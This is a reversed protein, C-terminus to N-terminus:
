TCGSEPAALAAVGSEVARVSLSRVVVFMCFLLVLLLVFLLVFLLVSWRNFVPASPIFRASLAPLVPMSLLVAVSLVSRRLMRVCRSLLEPKVSRAGRASRLQRTALRSRTPQRFAKCAIGTMEPAQADDGAMIGFCRERMFNPGAAPDWPPNADAGTRMATNTAAKSAIAM